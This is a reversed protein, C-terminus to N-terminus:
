TPCCCRDGIGTVDEWRGSSFPRKRRGPDNRGVARALRHHRFVARGAVVVCASYRSTAAAAVLALLLAFLLTHTIGRHGLITGYAATSFVDADPIIPLLAALGWYTWPMPRGTYLRAAALGVVAHTYDTAM